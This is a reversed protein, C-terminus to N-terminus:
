EEKEEKGEVFKMDAEQGATDIAYLLVIWKGDVKKVRLGVDHKDPNYNIEKPNAMSVWVLPIIVEGDKVTMRDKAITYIQTIRAPGTYTRVWICEDKGQDFSFIEKDAKVPDTTSELKLDINRISKLVDAPKLEDEAFTGSSFGVCVFALLAFAQRM